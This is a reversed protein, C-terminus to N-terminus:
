LIGKGLMCGGGRNRIDDMAYKVLLGENELRITGNSNNSNSSVRAVKEIRGKRRTTYGYKSVIKVNFAAAKEANNRGSSGGGSSYGFEYEVEDGINVSFNGNVSSRIESFHFFIEEERTLSYLFGYSDRLRMVKGLEKKRQEVQNEHQKVQPYADLSHDYKSHHQRSDQPPLCKTEKLGEEQQQERRQQEQQLDKNSLARQLSSQRRVVPRPNGNTTSSIKQETPSSSPFPPLIPIQYSESPM